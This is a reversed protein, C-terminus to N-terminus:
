PASSPPLPALGEEEGACTVLVDRPRAVERALALGLGARERSSGPVRPHEM